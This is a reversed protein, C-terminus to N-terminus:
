LVPANPVPPQKGSLGSPKTLTGGSIVLKIAEEVPMDLPRTESRPLVLTFGQTPLPTTPVFVTVLDPEPLGQRAAEEKLPGRIAHALPEYATGTVFGIVWSGEMPFQVLVASHFKSKGSSDVFAEGLQKVSTYLLGVFPVRGVLGEFVSLLYQGIISRIIVGLILVALILICLGFLPPLLEAFSSGQSINLIPDWLEGQETFGFIKRLPAQLKGWLWILAAVTIAL